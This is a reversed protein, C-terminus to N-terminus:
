EHPFFFFFLKTSTACFHSAKCCENGKVCKLKCSDYKESLDLNVYIALIFFFLFYCSQPRNNLLNFHIEDEEAYDVSLKSFKLEGM